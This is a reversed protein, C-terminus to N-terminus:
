INFRRANMNNAAEEMHILATTLRHFSSADFRSIEVIEEISKLTSQNQPDLRNIELNEIEEPVENADLNIM